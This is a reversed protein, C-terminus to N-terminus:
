LYYEIEVINITVSNEMTGSFYSYKKIINNRILYQNKKFWWQKQDM